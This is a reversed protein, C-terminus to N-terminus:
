KLICIEEPHPHPHHAFVFRFPSASLFTYEIVDLQQRSLGASLKMVQKQADHNIDSDLETDEIASTNPSAHHHPFTQFNYRPDVILPSQFQTLVSPRPPSAGLLASREDAPTQTLCMMRTTPCSTHLTACIKIEHPFLTSCGTSCVFSSTALRPLYAWLVRRPPKKICQAQATARRM